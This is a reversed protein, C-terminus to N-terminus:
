AAPAGKGSLSGAPPKLAAMVVGLQADIYKELTLRHKFHWHKLVWTHAMMLINYAMLDVDVPRFVKAQIGEKLIGAFIEAVAVELGMIRSRAARDLSSSKQYILLAKERHRDVVRHYLVVAVALKEDPDRVGDLQAVLSEQFTTLVDEMILRMIESKSKIYQYAVPLSVGAAEAIEHISTARFGKRAYLTSAADIIQRRVRDSAAIQDLVTLTRRDQGSM